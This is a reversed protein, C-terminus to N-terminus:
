QATRNQASVKRANNTGVSHKGSRTWQKATVRNPDNRVQMLPELMEANETRTETPKTKQSQKNIVGSNQTPQHFKEVNEPRL